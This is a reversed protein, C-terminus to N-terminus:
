KKPIDTVDIHIHDGLDDFAVEECARAKTQKREKEEKVMVYYEWLNKGFLILFPLLRFFLGDSIFIRCFFIILGLICLGFMLMNSFATAYISWGKLKIRGYIDIVYAIYLLLGLIVEIPLYKTFLLFVIFMFSIISIIIYYIRLERSSFLRTLFITTPDHKAQMLEHSVTVYERLKKQNDKDNFPNNHNIEPHNDM